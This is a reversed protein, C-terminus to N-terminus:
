NIQFEKYLKNRYRTDSAIKAIDETRNAALLKQLLDAFRKEGKKEGKAEIRDLAECMNNPKGGKESKLTMEFRPDNMLVSFLKLIEDTHRFREPDTPRYDPDTRHHAFYDPSFLLTMAWMFAFILVYVRRFGDLAFTFGMACLGPLAASGGTLAAWLALALEALGAAGVFRDRLVKSGRGLAWSVPALVM